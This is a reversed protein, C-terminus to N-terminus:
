SIGGARAWGGSQGAGQAHREASPNFTTIVGDADVSIVGAAVNRLVMEMYRRRQELEQNTRQMERQAEDLRAKSIKLDGTMRNFSNVLTGIEDPGEQDIFFTYDGEAIRQTGQALMGIPVTITKALYFGFWSAAFM